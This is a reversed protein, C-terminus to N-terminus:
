HIWRFLISLIGSRTEIGGSGVEQDIVEVDFPHFSHLPCKASRYLMEIRHQFGLEVPLTVSDERNVSEQVVFLFIETHYEKTLLYEGDRKERWTKIEVDSHPQPDPLWIEITPDLGLDLMRDAREFQDRWYLPEKRWPGVPLYPCIPVHDHPKRQFASLMRERSSMNSQM